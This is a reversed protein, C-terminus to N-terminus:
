GNKCGCARVGAPGCKVLHRMHVLWRNRIYITRLNTLRFTCYVSGLGLGLGLGLVLSVSSRPVLGELGYWVRINTRVNNVGV